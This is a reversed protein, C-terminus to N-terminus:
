DKKLFRLINSISKIPVDVNNYDGLRIEYDLSGSAEELMYISFLKEFETDNKPVLIEEDIEKRYAEVFISCMNKYILEAWTTLYEVDTDRLSSNYYLHDYVAYHFSSLMTALDLLPSKKLRRQSVPKYNEGTFNTIYFDKGTFMVQGLHYFGHTRMKVTSLPEHMLSQILSRLIDKNESILQADQRANENFYSSYHDINLLMRNLISNMYYYLPRQNNVTFSEPTFEDDTDISHMAKHFEATRKALLELMEVTFEGILDNTNIIEKIENKAFITSKPEPIEFDKEKGLIKDFCRDMASLLFSWATGTNEIYKEAVGIIVPDCKSCERFEIAGFYEPVNCEKQKHTLIRKFEFDPSLGSDLRRHLKLILDKSYSLLANNGSLHVLETSCEQERLDCISRKSINSNYAIFEGDFCKIRKRSLVYKFLTERFGPSYIADVIIAENGNLVVRSIVSEPYDNQYDNSKEGRSLHVPLLYKTKNGVLSTVEIFLMGFNHNNTSLDIFRQVQVDRVKYKVWEVRHLYKSLALEINSVNQERVFLDIWKGQANISPININSELHDKKNEPEELKLLFYGHPGLTLTYSDEKISPFKTYSFLDVPDTGIYDSLNLTVAQSWKSMNVVILIIEDEYKRIYALVKNNKQKIFKLAGRGFAKYKKRIDILHKMWWLLSSTNRSQNEVNISSYHYEPDIILPLFLKQPNTSSFGANRDSDWQMPTRVGDRDGLYYNDGMGIEDGYYLVPTGILSFLLVNLLEIKDRNNGLLPALRRRIGLNIKSRPDNAFARYMFDREEDTVMELTLEDHNRLFTAWQSKSSINPTQELIDIIPFSNEMELAVYMRPMLPFHFAMHCEDADGFYASAEDPWQNAEALLMKDEFKGDIHKRLKKLFEHTENLNECNSGDREFLYPVADLRLGDVGLGFWFDIIKILEKQVNPNDFNLDPQHSYFRHWYYNQTDEDWAWNSSEFDKFIIRADKYKDVTKSWVYYNRYNSREPSLKARKFWAHQDSTHNLVLETIVRIGRSHAEKLFEKFDRMTGYNEHINMYDSTDYGDDKLPSPYFPLLWIANIGLDELYDLKNTLGKFDGIGDGNSDSFAKVHVEYIIVDKYWLPDNLINYNKKM